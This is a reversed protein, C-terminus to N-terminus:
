GWCIDMELKAANILGSETQQWTLPSQTVEHAGLRHRIMMM